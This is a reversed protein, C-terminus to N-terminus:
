RINFREQWIKERETDKKESFVSNYPIWFKYKKHSWFDYGYTMMIGCLIFVCGLKTLKNQQFYSGLTEAVLLSYFPMFYNTFRSFIIEYIMVGIGLIIQMCILNEFIIEKKLIYKLYLTIALPLLACQMFLFFVWLFSRDNNESFYIYASVKDGIKGFSNLLDLYPQISYLCVLFLLLFFLFTKGMKIKYTLPIFLLILASIHFMISIFALFYYRGWKKNKLNPYNLLFVAIALSERMIETNFYFFYMILYFFLGWFPYNSNNKIFHFVCFNLIITHFLQIIFFDPSISRAIICLILYFPQYNFSLFDTFSFSSLTPIQKYSLMYNLTDIGVRYRFGILSIVFIYILLYYLKRFRKKRKVDCQIATFAVFSFLILYLIM